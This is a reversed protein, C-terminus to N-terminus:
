CTMPSCFITADSAGQRIFKARNFQDVDWTYASGSTLIHGISATPDTGDWRAVINNSQVDFTVLQVTPYSYQTTVAVATNSVTFSQSAVPTTTGTSSSTARRPYLVHIQSFM